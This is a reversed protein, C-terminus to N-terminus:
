GRGAVLGGPRGPAAVCEGPTTGWVMEDATVSFNDFTVATADRTRNNQLAFNVEADEANFNGDFLLQTDFWGQVVAGIRVVQLRGSTATSAVAGAWTLPPDLFVHLNNGGPSEDSRVVFFGQGSFRINLQIQNGPAGDVRTISTNTMDVSVASDGGLKPRFTLGLSRLVYDGAVPKSIRVDGLSVDLTYLNTDGVVTWYRSDLGAAFDDTFIEDGRAAAALGVLCAAAALKRWTTSPALGRASQRAPGCLLCRLACPSRKRRESRHSCRPLPGGCELVSRTRWSEGESNLVRLENPDRIELKPDKM